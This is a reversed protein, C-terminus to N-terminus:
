CGAACSGVCALLNRRACGATLVLSIIAVLRLYGVTTSQMSYETQSRANRHLDRVAVTYRRPVVWEHILRVHERIVERISAQRVVVDNVPKRETLALGGYAM